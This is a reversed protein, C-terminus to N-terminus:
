KAQATLTMAQFRRQEARNSAVHHSLGHRRAALAQRMNVREM